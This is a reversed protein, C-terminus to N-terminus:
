ARCAWAASRKVPTSAAFAWRARGRSRKRPFIGEADWHAAHPALEGQAYDRAAQAFARQEDTLELDM